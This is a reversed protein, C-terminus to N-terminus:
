PKAGVVPRAPSPAPAASEEGAGLGAGPKVYRDWVGLMLLVIVQQAWRAPELGNEQRVLRELAAREFREALLGSRSLIVDDRLARLDTELWRVLPIEFGRKPAARVDAPLYREAVKRLLPKTERGFLKVHEPLRAVLDILVHDLLPSRAELSHQMTCVDLKLNLCDILVTRADSAMMRDVYGARRFAAHSAAVFREAPLCTRFWERAGCLPGLVASGVMDLSWMLYRQVPDHSMGRVIRHAFAYPTRFSRPAPLVAHLAKWGVRLAANDSWGLWANLRAAHHRRYGALIEDGGDGTLVVKLHKRAERAVYYNPIASTNAFPQDFARAITPLIDGAECRVVLEHHDTGYREAVQRALPREDFEGDEFGISVTLLKGPYQQAAMATILGSDIGGSLFAGVPVDSRLRLRVSERLAADVQDVAENFSVRSKPEVALQWYPKPESARRDRVVMLNAAPLARIERYITGPAPVFGWGLYDVLSQDDVHLPQQLASAVVKIESGFVFHTPTQAYYVPKKGLRDRALVLQRRPGDWLALGFMGRLRTAFELGVEEYLHVITETDSHTAFRHGKAILEDRLEVYNYIEGNFVVQVSGDENGMPQGGGSLDIISLRRHGLGIGAARDTWYGEADPGRHACARTARRLREDDFPGWIGAIGCM